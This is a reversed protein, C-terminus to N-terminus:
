LLYSKVGYYILGTVLAKVFIAQMNLSGNESVFLGPHLKFIGDVQELNFIVSLLVVLLIGKSEIKINDILNTGVNTAMKNPADEETSPGNVRQAMEQQQAMQQQQAMLQQQQMAMQRQMQIQKVQEPTLENGHQDRMIQQQPQQAQQQVQQQAQPQQGGTNHNNLDNLISDVLKSDETSIGGNLNGIQTEQSMKYFSLINNGINFAM